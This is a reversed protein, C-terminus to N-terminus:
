PLVPVRAFVGRVRVRKRFPLFPSSTVLFPAPPAPSNRHKTRPYHFLQRILTKDFMQSDRHIPTGRRPKCRNSVLRPLVSQGRGSLRATAPGSITRPHCFHDCPLKGPAHTQRDADCPENPLVAAACFRRWPIRHSHESPATPLLASVPALRSLHIPPCHSFA